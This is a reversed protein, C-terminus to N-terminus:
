RDVRSFWLEGLTLSFAASFFQEKILNNETTGRLGAAISFDILNIDGFPITVGGHVSYQNINIGDFTYQTEEYSAGVRFAMQEFTTPHMGLSKNKYEFGVSYKALDKLNSDYKGNFKYESFPQYVYDFLILYKKSWSYSAGLTYKTPLITQTEGSINELEGISTTAIILTDTTLDSTINALASLRFESSNSDNFLNILNGSIAAVTAGVGRYKYQTQYSIDHFTSNDDFDQSSTYNNTGTYYEVSAGLSTNTPVKFSTGLFVKSISGKGSFSETYGGLNEDELNNNINYSVASVPILGLAVSIGLKKYVPFGITFGSFIVNSHFSSSNIDSYNAGVYKASLSFRTFYLNSWSAPNYGDVYDRDIVASGLGGFGLSRASSTHILDGIGYRSYIQGGQAIVLDFTLFLLLVIYYKKKNM